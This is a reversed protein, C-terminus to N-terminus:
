ADMAISIVCRIEENKNIDEILIRRCVLFDENIQMLEYKELCELLKKKGIIM